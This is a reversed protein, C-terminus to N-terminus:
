RREERHQRKLRGWTTLEREGGVFRCDEASRPMLVYAAAGDITEETVIGRLFGLRDGARVFFTSDPAPASSWRDSGLLTDGDAMLTYLDAAEGRGREAVTLNYLTVVMGEYRESRGAGASLGLDAAPIAPADPAHGPGLVSVRSEADV